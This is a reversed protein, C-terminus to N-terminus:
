RSPSRAGDDGRTLAVGAATGGAAAVVLTTRPGWWAFMPSEACPSRGEAMTGTVPQVMVVDPGSLTIQGEFPTQPILAKGGGCVAITSGAVANLKISGADLYICVSNGRSGLKVRSSPNLTLRSQDKFLLVAPAAGSEIEDGNAVPWSSVSTPPVARGRIKLGDGSVVTALPTAAFMSVTILAVVTLLRAPLM